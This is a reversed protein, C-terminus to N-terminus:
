LFAILYLNSFFIFFWFRPCRDGSGILQQMLHSYRWMWWHYVAEPLSSRMQNLADRAFFLLPVGRALFSGTEGDIEVDIKEQAWQPLQSSLDPGTYNQKIYLSLATVIQDLSLEDVIASVDVAQSIANYTINSPLRSILKDVPENLMFHICKRYDDM